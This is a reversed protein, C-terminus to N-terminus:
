KGSGLVGLGIKRGEGNAAIAFGIETAAADLMTKRYKENSLFQGTFFAVDGVTPQTGCGGCLAAVVNIESWRGREAQPLRDYIPQGTEPSFNAAGPAPLMARATEALTQSEKLPPRGAVKRAANIERLALATQETTPLPRSQAGEGASNGPGSFNQVAYLGGTANVAIGFGFSTLGPNLINKRHGASNMWGEHIQRLVEPTAPPRCSDCKAINEATLLWRSGGAKVFRGGATTGEPSNHSYYNRKLMDAAHAQAASNLKAELAMPPLKHDRRSANLLELALKRAADLEMAALPTVLVFFAAILRAALM